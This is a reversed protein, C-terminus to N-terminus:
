KINILPVSGGTVQPLQGNWKELALRQNEIERLKLLGPTIEQKQLRLSEAEAKASAIKQEAEVKIRELDREAKLKLQDATTKGEIAQNFSESFRFNVISFEDIAIGHRLLRDKMFQSIQDRVEPRKSILEEATYKATTAKFAEQVAPVIIRDGVSNLDGVLQFTEAVRTPILHYNLAIKTHVQQLDRSAADGDGEAKQIQVNIERVQQVIPIRFHLGEELVTQNVKGFTTIVGRHGANIVVFPNLWSLLVLVVIALVVYKIVNPFASVQLNPSIIAM